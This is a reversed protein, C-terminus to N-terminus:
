SQDPILKQYKEQASSNCCDIFKACFWLVMQENRKCREAERLLQSRARWAAQTPFHLAPCCHLHELVTSPYYSVALAPAPLIWRCMVHFIQGTQFGRDVKKHSFVWLNTWHPAVASLCLCSSELFIFVYSLFFLVTNQGLILSAM